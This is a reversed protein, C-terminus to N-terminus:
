GDMGDGPPAGGSIRVDPNAPLAAVPASTSAVLPRHPSPTPKQWILAGRVPALQEPEIAVDAAPRPLLKPYIKTYFATRNAKDEKVWAVLADVGGLKDFAMQIAAKAENTIRNRSGKPRGRGRASRAASSKAM